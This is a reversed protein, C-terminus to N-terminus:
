LAPEPGRKQVGRIQDGAIGGRASWSGVIKVHMLVSRGVEKAKASRLDASAVIGLVSRRPSWFQSM